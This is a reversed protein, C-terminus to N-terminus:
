PYEKYVGDCELVMEVEDDLAWSDESELYEVLKDWLEMPFDDVFM